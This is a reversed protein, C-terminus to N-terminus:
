RLTKWKDGVLGLIGDINVGADRPDTGSLAGGGSTEAPAPKTNEFIDVGVKNLATENLRKIREQRQQEYEEEKKKLEMKRDDKKIITAGETVIRRTELGAVVETIIGSLVGDDFICEKICEKILPKLAQKLESKKM